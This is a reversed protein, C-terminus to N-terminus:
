SSDTNEDHTWFAALKSLWFGHDAIRMRQMDEALGQLADLDRPRPDLGINDLAICASIVHNLYHCLPDHNDPTYEALLIGLNDPYPYSTQWSYCVRPHEECPRNWSCTDTCGVINRIRATFVAKLWCALQSHVDPGRIIGAIDYGEPTSLDINM